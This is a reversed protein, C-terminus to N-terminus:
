IQKEVQAYDLEVPTGRGLVNILVKLRAKDDDVSEVAGEFSQFPGDIVRVMEGIDFVMMPRSPAEASEKIRGMIRAVEADPIPRPKNQSGLFGTVKPTNRVLHYAADTLDVKVLVYGPFFKRESEVNRRVVQETPVLIEEFLHGLNEEEIERELSRKVHKEFNSYAQVVYWKAAM